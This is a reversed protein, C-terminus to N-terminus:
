DGRGNGKQMDPAGPGLPLGQDMYAQLLRAKELIDPDREHSLLVTLFAKAEEFHGLRANVYAAYYMGQSNDPAYGVIEMVIDRADEFREMDMYVDALALRAKTFRPASNVCSRLRRLAGELDGRSRAGVGAVYNYILMEINHQFAELDGGSARLIAPQYVPPHDTLFVTEPADSVKFLRYHDNEYLLTFYNLSEPVFHMQFAVAGADLSEVGALYRPSYRGSDLLVDVSYVVYDIKTEQCLRHFEEEGGYFARTLRVHKAAAAPSTGAPLLVSTRGTFTLLLASLDDPALISERVSTRSSVFRVLERDTNELSVWLFADPDRHAAGVARAIQYVADPGKQRFAVGAFACYFGLILLPVRIRLDRNAAIAGGAVVPVVAAAAVPLLSRDLLAAAAAIAAVVCATVFSRGRSRAEPSLILAAALLLLPVFFQLSAQPTLPAHELSWIQRMQESLAGPEAPKSLLFRARTAICALVPFSEGSRLHPLALVAAAAGAANAAIVSVRKRLSLGRWLAIGAVWLVLVLGAGDWVALLAFAAAAVALNAMVAGARSSPATARMLVLAHLSGALAAVIVHTYERGNTVAILPPLFATLAAALLGAAQSEWLRRAVGYLTFVCLASLIVVFRRTVSRADAESFFYAGRMVQGLVFESGQPATRAPVYGEPHNAKADPSQLSVGEAVRSAHRHNMASAGKFYPSDLRNTTAVRAAIAAMFLGTLILFVAVRSLKM